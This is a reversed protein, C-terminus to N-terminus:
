LKRKNMYPYNECSETGTQFNANVNLKAGM